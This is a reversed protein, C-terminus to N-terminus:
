ATIHPRYRLPKPFMYSRKGNILVSAVRPTDLQVTSAVVNVRACKQRRDIYHPRGAGHEKGSYQARVHIHPTLSALQRPIYPCRACIQKKREIEKPSTAGEMLAEGVNSAAILRSGAILAKDLNFDVSHRRARSLEVPRSVLREKPVEKKSVDPSCSVARHGNLPRARFLLWDIRLYIAITTRGPGLTTNSKPRSVSVGLGQM